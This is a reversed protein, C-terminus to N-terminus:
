SKSVRHTRLLIEAGLMGCQPIVINGLLRMRSTYTERDEPTRLLWSDMPISSGGNFESHLFSGLPQLELDQHPVRPLTEFCEPGTVVGQFLCFFLIM